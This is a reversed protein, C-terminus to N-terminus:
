TVELLRGFVRDRNVKVPRVFEGIYALNASSESDVSSQREDTGLSERAVSPM